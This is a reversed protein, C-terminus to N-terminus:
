RASIRTEKGEKTDVTQMVPVKGNVGGSSSVPRGPAPKITPIDPIDTLAPIDTLSPIATPSTVAEIDSLHEVDNDLEEDYFEDDKVPFGRKDGTVEDGRSLPRIHPIGPVMEFHELKPQPFRPYHILELEPVGFRPWNDTDPRFDAFRPIQDLPELKEIKSNIDTIAPIAPIDTIGRDYLKGLKSKLRQLRRKENYRMLTQEPQDEDFLPDEADNGHMSRLVRYLDSHKQSGKKIAKFTKKTTAQEFPKKNSKVANSTKPFVTNTKLDEGNTNEGQVESRWQAKSMNTKNECSNNSNFCKLPKAATLPESVKEADEKSNIMALYEETSNVQRDSQIQPLDGLKSELYHESEVFTSETSNKDENNPRKRVHYNIASTIPSNELLSKKSGKGSYSRQPHLLMLGNNHMEYTESKIAENNQQKITNSSNVLATTTNTQNTSHIQKESLVISSNSITDNWQQQHLSKNTFKIGTVHLNTRSLSM